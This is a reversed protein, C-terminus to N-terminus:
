GLFEAFQQRADPVTKEYLKLDHARIRQEFVQMNQETARGAKIAKAIVKKIERLSKLRDALKIADSTQQTISRAGETRVRWLYVNEALVDFANAEAYARTMESMDEFYMSPFSIKHKKYFDFNFLKNWATVDYVANPQKVFNTALQTGSSYLTRTDVRKVRTLGKIRNVDGVVFDSQTKTITSVLKHLAGPALADDSDLFMLYDTSTIAAVGANRAAGLGANKQTVIELDLKGQFSELISASSDTSGDNVAIVKLKAYQQARLSQLCLALYREVNYVPVVVTVKPTSKADERREVAQALRTFRRMLLGDSIKAM